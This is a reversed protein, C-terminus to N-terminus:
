GVSTFDTPNKKGVLSPDATSDKITDSKCVQLNYILGGM